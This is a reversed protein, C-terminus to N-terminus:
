KVYAVILFLHLMTIIKSFFIWLRGVFYTVAVFTLLILM